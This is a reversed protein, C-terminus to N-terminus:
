HLIKEFDELMKKAMLEYGKISLHVDELSLKKEIWYKKKGSEQMFKHMDFLLTKEEKAIEYLTTRVSQFYPAEQYYKGQKQVVTPPSILMIITNKNHEKLLKIWKTLYNKFEKQNFTTFLADNSGYALIILDNKLINLEQKLVKQNWSLWLDSKAGNIAVTDLYINKNEKNTIFYGGLEANKQLASIQLPFTLDLEKYTWKNASHPRLQYNKGQSDKISFANTNQPAKFVFTIIFNKKGLTSDLTISAGKHKAKAIVGGLPFNIQTNTPNKSNLIEYGKSSYKLNSNQQYKPQLPYAFGIANQKLLYNRIVRPFFDAAMHSDGYVRIGINQHSKLKRQFNKIDKKSVYNTIASQNKTQSLVSDILENTNANLTSYLIFLLFSSVIKNM